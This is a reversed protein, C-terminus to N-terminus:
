CTRPTTELFHPLEYQCTVTEDFKWIIVQNSAKNGVKYSKKEGFLRLFDGQTKGRSLANNTLYATIDV